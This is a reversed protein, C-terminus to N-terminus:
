IFSSGDPVYLHKKIDYWRANPPVPLEKVGWIEGTLNSGVSLTIRKISASKATVEAEIDVQKENSHTYDHEPKSWVILPLFVNTGSHNPDLYVDNSRTRMEQAWAPIISILLIITLLSKMM